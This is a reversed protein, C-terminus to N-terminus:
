EFILIYDYIPQEGNVNIVEAYKYKSQLLSCVDEADKESVSRGRMVIIIDFSDADVAECLGLLASNLDRDSSYVTDDTFGIYDGERVSVGNVDADRTAVSIMGTVVSGMYESCQEVLEDSSYDGVDLMSIAAYGQGISRSEVVRVEADTYLSAAQKATMIINGNNPFVLIIDSNVTKFANIFDEASPNMSQGGDVVVDCVLDLFTKKIGEGAAVTVIAVRKQPKTNGFVFNNKLDAENHQLTMNEIKLKLYEGYQQCHNLIDGPKFTHVHVKVVDDDCFAVVSDGNANLWDIMETIDFSDVDIKSSQLRLLFETCYGYELVTDRTFKSFDPADDQQSQSFSSNFIVEGGNVASKMGEVIYYLGAGGSDVVGAKKLVDLLEPTRKLSEQLGFSLDDFFTNFSSSDTVKSSAYEVAERFVTLITGEVPVPVAAYSEEVGAKLASCFQSVSATEQGELGKSIGAFIRSLIVGSNGRAGLLMGYSVASAVESLPNGDLSQASTVGSNATMYMNDGTDGDPSPFVNLDNVIQRNGFLDSSGAAVMKLYLSGDIVHIISM